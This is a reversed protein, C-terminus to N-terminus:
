IIAPKLVNKQILATRLLQMDRNYMEVIIMGNETETAAKCHYGTLLGKTIYCEDGESFLDCKGKNMEIKKAWKSAKMKFKEIEEVPLKLPKLETELVPLQIIYKDVIGEFMRKDEVLDVEELIYIPLVRGDFIFGFVENVFQQEEQQNQIEEKQLDMQAEQELKTEM